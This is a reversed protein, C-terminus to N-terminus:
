AAKLQYQLRRNIIAHIKNKEWSAMIVDVRSLYVYAQSINNLIDTNITINCYTQNGPLPYL